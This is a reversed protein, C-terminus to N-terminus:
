RAEHLQVVGILDDGGYGQRDAEAFAAHAAAVVGAAVGAESATAAAYRLDKAVLHIPFNPAFARTTMGTAVRRAAPSATPLANLVEVAEAPAIGHRALTPILEALAATQVAFLANVALKMAAGAGTPGVLHVAQGLVRLVGEVRALAAADGGVLHVLAGAEAQPRSGLVPADLFAAGREAVAEGLARAWGPTVTSSEVAVTSERLSHLAGDDALWVARSAEDDRVIAVVVDAQEAAARPSDAVTAGRDRLPAAREPTRNYVIVPHGADLLRAAMRAGMAGLGLFAVPQM